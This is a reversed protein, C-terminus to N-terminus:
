CYRIVMQLVNGGFLIAYANEESANPVYELVPWIGPWLVFKLNLPLSIMYNIYEISM